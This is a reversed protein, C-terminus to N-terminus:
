EAEAAKARAVIEEVLHTPVIAYHSFEMAYVGRGQTIARLNIAYQQMEALPALATITARTATQEMGQVRARRTNLDSMVAGAFEDPVTVTFLYIPELLVPRGAMFARKFCERGAIQFAIDKSDVPHEKGDTVAVLVDVIPYGAIVGQKMVAKVGKEVSPTFSTSIHGGYVEWEYEFGADRPLPELRMHVEAFQGAGGSQKKHRYEAMSTASVTERYPVKPISTEVGVGFRSQMRRVATDVHADGMGALITQRTTADQHWHLTPDEECIRTLTAGMKATDAKTKPSIAVSYLPKPFLPGRIKLPREPSCLTDGTLAEGMKAVAVIDGAHVTEVSIQENGRMVYIQGLREDEDARVNYVTDGSNVLGGYVKFYTLKGVYPDATTKFVLLALPSLDSVEFEEEEGEPLDAVFSRSAPSPAVEALLNLLTKLGIDNLGSGVFVPVYDGNVIVQRLGGWIEEPTLAEDEFYKMMLEEDSEVAAEVLNTYMQEVQDALADPIPASQGKAGMHATQTLLNVVGGFDDQAGIPLMLPLFQADFAEELSDLAAAFNANDRDMKNILVARPLSEEDAYGWTLETGVEVGAAADVVMLALDVVRLASKVEGIFDTYGPTDLFNLKHDKWEVPAQATSLSISRRIEEDDFDTVTSGEEVTGRREVAKSLFLLAEVLTTKGSSGHGVLAINRIKETTYEKM